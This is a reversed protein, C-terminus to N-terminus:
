RCGEVGPSADGCDAADGASGVREEGLELSQVVAPMGLVLREILGAADVEYLAPVGPVRYAALVEGASDALVPYTGGM